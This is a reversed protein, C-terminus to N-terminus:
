GEHDGARGRLNRMDSLNYSLQRERISKNQEAYYGRTADVDHCLAPNQTKQHHCLIGNYIYVVDEKDMGRNISMQAGELTQSHHVNSSYVNPHM